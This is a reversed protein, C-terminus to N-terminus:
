LIKKILMKKVAVNGFNDYAIVRLIHIHIIRIRDREWIFNYPPKNVEGLKKTGFIGSYFEVKKIGSEEDFAEVEISITGIIKTLRFFMDHIKKNNIYFGKEPKIIKIKPPKTDNYLDMLPYRDKNNGGPILYPTDGIGDGNNDEGTYDDWYNGEIDNDWRDTSSDWANHKNNNKFSNHHYLNGHSKGSCNIGIQNEEINNYTILNGKSVGTIHIGNQNNGIIENEHINNGTSTQDIIIGHKTNQNIINNTINNAHSSTNINIAINNNTYTNTHIKNGNSIHFKLGINNNTFKNDKIINYASELHIGAHNTGSNKITFGTITVGTATDTIKIVDDKEIGDIFTINKNEGRLNVNNKIILNEFYTGNYVFITYDPKSDNIADQIITYNNPGSGGVYLNNDQFNRNDIDIKYYIQISGISFNYGIIILFTIITFYITKQNLKRIM